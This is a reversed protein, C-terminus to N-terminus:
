TGTKPLDVAICAAKALEMALPDLAGNPLLDCLALHLHAVRGLSENSIVRVYFDSLTKMAQTQSNGDTGTASSTAAAASAVCDYDLFAHELSKPPVLKKDWILSFMDGDLDGGSCAQALSFKEKCSAPLVVVNILHGLTSACDVANVIRLDGPHLCPNRYMLVPGTVVVVENTNSDPKIFKISVEDTRLASGTPDPVGMLLCGQEVLMHCKARLSKAARKYAVRLLKTFFPETCLHIGSDSIDAMCSRDLYAGLRYAAVAKDCLMASLMSLEKEQIEIVAESINWEFTAQVHQNTFDLATKAHFRHLSDLINLVDRNLRVPLYSAAKIVCLTDHNSECKKMSKRFMIHNSQTRYVIHKNEYQEQMKNDVVLVGKLGALRIQFAIPQVAYTQLTPIKNIIEVAVDKHIFGSGDTLLVASATNTYTDPIECYSNSSLNCIPIDATCFLGLRSMYKSVEHPPNPLLQRRMLESLSLSSSSSVEAEQVFYASQSRMQSASACVFSYRSSCLEFGNNLIALIRALCKSNSRLSQFDEECFTVIVIRKDAFKRLFRNLQVITNPMIIIRSPTICVRPVTKYNEPVNTFDSHHLIQAIPMSQALKTDKWDVLYKHYSHTLAYKSCTQSISNFIQVLSINNNLCMFCSSNFQLTSYIQELMVVIDEIRVSTSTMANIVTQIFQQASAPDILFLRNDVISMLAWKIQSDILAGGTGIEENDFVSKYNITGHHVTMRCLFGPVGLLQPTSLMSCLLPYASMPFKIALVPYRSLMYLDQTTTDENDFDDDMCDAAPLVVRNWKEDMDYLLVNMMDDDDIQHLNSVHLLPVASLPLYLICTNTLRDSSLLAFENITSIPIKMNITKSLDTIHISSDDNNITFRTFDSRLEARSDFTNRSLINGVTLSLCQWSPSTGPSATTSSLSPFLQMPIEMWVFSSRSVFFEWNSCFKSFSHGAQSLLLMNTANVGGAISIDGTYKVNLLLCSDSEHFLAHSCLRAAMGNHVQLRTVKLDTSYERFARELTTEINQFDEVTCSVNLKLAFQLKAEELENPEYLQVSSTTSNNNDGNGMIRQIGSFKELMERTKRSPLQELKAEFDLVTGLTREQAEIEHVKNQETDSLICIFRGNCKRARGRSQMFQTLSSQGVFRIVLDCASVDLGEELVSTCVLMKSEGSALSSIADEQEGDWDMGDWGGHGVVKKPNMHPYRESMIDCLIRAVERTNIFVLIRSGKGSESIERCLQALRPSDTDVTPRVLFPLQAMPVKNDELSKIAAGVGVVDCLDIALLASWIYGCLETVDSRIDKYHSEKSVDLTGRVEGRVIYWLEQEIKKCTIYTEGFLGNIIDAKEAMFSKMELVFQEQTPSVKIIRWIVETSAVSVDPKFIVANWFKSRLEAMNKNASSVNKASFPSASLGLIRPRESVQIQSLISLLQVYSHNGTAHHCEDFVVVSLINLPLEKSKFLEVLSGATIVLVQCEGDRVRRVSRSTKNESCIKAVILDTDMSIANAQQFVLPIRDVVMVALRSRNLSSFRSIVMSAVLTKGFGTPLTVICNRHLTEIYAEIQQPRPVKKLLLDNWNFDNDNSPMVLVSVAHLPTNQNHGASLIVPSFTENNRKVIYTFSTHMFDRWKDKKKLSIGSIQIKTTGFGIYSAGNPGHSVQVGLSGNCRICQAELHHKDKM